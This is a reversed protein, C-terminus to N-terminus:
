AGVLEREDAPADGVAVPELHPAPLNAEGDIDVRPLLRDLCGPLWWNADGMLKMTAPVLVIRVITADDPGLALTSVPDSMALVNPLDALGARLDALGARADASDFFTVDPDGPTAVVRATLGARDSQAAFRLDTALQSDLGPVAFSDELERGFSSSAAVVAVAVLFWAGIM